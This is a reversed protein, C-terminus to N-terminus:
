KKGKVAVHIVKGTNKRDVMKGQSIMKEVANKWGDRCDVLTSM